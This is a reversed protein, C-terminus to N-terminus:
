ISMPLKAIEQAEQSKVSRLNNEEWRFFKKSLKRVKALAERVEGVLEANRAREAKALEDELHELLKRAQEATELFLVPDYKSGPKEKPSWRVRIDNIQGRLM